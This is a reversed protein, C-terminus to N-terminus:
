PPTTLLSDEPINRLTTQYFVSSTESTGATEMMLAIVARISATLVESVDTLIKQPV